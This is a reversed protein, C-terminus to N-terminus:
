RLRVGGEILWIFIFPLLGALASLASLCMSVPLLYKRNGMYLRLKRLTDM